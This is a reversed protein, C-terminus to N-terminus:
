GTIIPRKGSADVTGDRVPIAVPCSHGRELNHKGSTAVESSSSSQDGSVTQARAKNLFANRTKTSQRLDVSMLPDESGAISNDIVIVDVEEESEASCGLADQVPPFFEHLVTFM